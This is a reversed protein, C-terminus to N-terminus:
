VRVQLIVVWERAYGKKCLTSATEGLIMHNNM